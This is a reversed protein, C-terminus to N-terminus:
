FKKKKIKKDFYLVLLKGYIIYYYEDTNPHYNYLYRKKRILSNLMIQLKDKSNNHLCIRSDTKEKKSYDLLSTITKVHLSNINKKLFFAPSKGKKNINLYKKLNRM